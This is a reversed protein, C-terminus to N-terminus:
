RCRPMGPDDQCMPDNSKSRAKKKPAAQITATIKRQWEHVIPEPTYGPSGTLYCFNSALHYSFHSQDIKEWYGGSYDHGVPAGYYYITRRPQLKAHFDGCRVRVKGIWATKYQTSMEENGTPNRRIWFRIQGGRVEIDETDVTWSSDIRMWKANEGSHISPVGAQVPAALLAAAATITLCRNM